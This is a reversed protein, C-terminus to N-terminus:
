VMGAGELRSDVLAALESMRARAAESSRAEAFASVASWLPADGASRAVGGLFQTIYDLQAGEADGEHLIRSVLSLDDRFAVPDPYVAEDEVARPGNPRVESPLHSLIAAQFEALSSLPKELFGDAGASLAASQAGPDGSTGLLVDVRPAAVALEAILEAGSGDPLGLDVVVVTPRYVCLHRRASQLSDARRIRAGSRLCLLRMAESAFRSDEVLLVTTGLLPRAATAPRTKLFDDLSPM